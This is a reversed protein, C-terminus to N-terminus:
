NDVIADDGDLVAVFEADVKNLYLFANASKGINEENKFLTFRNAFHRDLSKRAVEYTQDSSADDILVIDFNQFTQDILSEIARSIYDECNHGSIFVVANPRYTVM